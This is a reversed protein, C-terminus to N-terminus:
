PRRAAARAVYADYGEMLAVGFAATFCDGAGTTDVVQCARPPSAATHARAAMGFRCGVLVRVKAARLAPQRISAAPPPPVLLSGSAGLKVLVYAVGRAQLVAAAALVAAETDTPM